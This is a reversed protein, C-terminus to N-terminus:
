SYLSGDDSIKLNSLWTYDYPGFTKDNIQVYWKESGIKKFIWGYKSGDKSFTLYDVKSYPGFTQNNIQVYCKNNQKFVWGHKSYDESFTIISVDM